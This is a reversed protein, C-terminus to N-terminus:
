LSKIQEMLQVAFDPNRRGNTGFQSATARTCTCLFNLCGSEDPGHRQETWTLCFQEDIQIGAFSFNQSQGQLTLRVKDDQIFPQPAAISSTKTQCKRTYM